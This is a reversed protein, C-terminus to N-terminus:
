HGGHQLFGMRFLDMNACCPFSPPHVRLSMAPHRLPLSATWRTKTFRRLKFHSVGFSFAVPTIRGGALQALARLVVDGGILLLITSAYGAPSSWVDRFRDASTNLNIPAMQDRLPSSSQHLSHILFPLRLPTAFCEFTRSRGALIVRHSRYSSHL